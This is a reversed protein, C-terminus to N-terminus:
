WALVAKVPYHDSIYPIGAYPENLTKFSKCSAFGKFYVYDIVASTKGWGHFSGTRDSMEAVKRANQMRQDFEIIAPNDDPINLDGTLVMPLNRDGNMEAIRSEILALGNRRAEVGVHDLHTNVFFFEKGTPIHKMFAWTATRRCAADWGLSPVDPTESLWYTGWDELEITGTNWFIGMIEGERSGDDRGVGVAKYDPCNDLIYQMQAEFAEQVGFVDPKEAEVMAPSASKRCEWSNDGDPGHMMRVNFSVVTLPESEKPGCCASLVAFAASLAFFMKKM